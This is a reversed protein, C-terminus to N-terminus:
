PIQIFQKESILNGNDAFGQINVKIRELNTKPLKLKVTDSDNISLNPFWGLVGYKLYSDDTYSNYVPVAYEDPRDFTLPYEYNLYGYPKKADATYDSRTFIRIAGGTGRVGEGLGFRNVEIYAIDVTRLGVLLSLDNQGNLLPSQLPTGDLYISPPPLNPVINVIIPDLGSRGFLVRFGPRTGLFFLVNPWRKRLKEDFVTVQGFSFDILQKLRLDEVKNESVVVEDLTITKKDLPLSFDFNVVSALSTVSPIKYGLRKDIGDFNPIETPSFEIQNKFFPEKFDGRKDIEGIILRDEQHPFLSNTSYTKNDDTTNFKKLEIGQHPFAVWNKVKDRDNTIIAKIGNEFEYEAVPAFYLIDSWNYASWGQTLLMLDLDKVSLSNPHFYDAANETPNSLHSTLM